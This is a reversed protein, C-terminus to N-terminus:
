GTLLLVSVAKADTWPEADGPLGTDKVNHLKLNSALAAFAPLGGYKLMGPMMMADDMTTVNEFRFKNADAATRRIAKGALAAALIAIPGLEGFGILDVHKVKANFLLNGLCTLVDHIRQAALSRNYGFTFGAYNKNVAFPVTPTLAGCGLVDPTLVARNAKLLSLVAPNPKGFGATLSTAGMPHLWIAATERDYDKPIWGVTPVAEGTGRRGLLAAHETFGDKDVSRFDEVSILGEGLRPSNVMTRLASRLTANADPATKIAANAQRTLEPRLLKAGVEDAPRPHKANFVRLEDVPTPTFTPEHVPESNGMLHTRFWTYMFERSPKGFNHPFKVWSKGAVNTEAGYLKYLQRLEPLGKTMIERTWDNAGSVALPKPAMLAALEINGTNLRLYSANECVCGGQMGTSVMVAPFAAAVREDCAALIFTQTGGGSAGTVALKTKDVDPLTELFDLARISNWTQLGTLSQLRLEGDPEAFADPHIVGSKLIHPIATSEAYGIMDYQFVVFGLRALTIPIAQMFFRAEELTAEEGRAVAAKAVSETEVHLRGGNWHGHAFLVAPRPKVDGVPRYLNGVVTHGNLSAFHVKEITHDARVLKGTITAEIRPREPMPWLGQSLMVQVRLEERRLKWAELTAPPSWSFDDNLTKPKGLRRDKPKDQIRGFLPSAGSLAVASVQLAQRRSLM